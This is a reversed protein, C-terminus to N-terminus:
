VATIRPQWFHRMNQKRKFFFYIHRHHRHKKKKNRGSTPSLENKVQNMTDKTMKNQRFRKKGRFNTKDKTSDNIKEGNHRTKKSDNNIETNQRQRKTKQDYSVNKNKIGFTACSNASRWSRDPRIFAFPTTLSMM